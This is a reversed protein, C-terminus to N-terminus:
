ACQDLAPMRLWRKKEMRRLRESLLETAHTGAHAGAFRLRDGCLICKYPNTGLFGKMLVAFGPKEPKERAQMQLAEYVLPLLTGRKRNALFCSYRVMKFHRAPVHCIYRGIIDEQSLTQRKHKGTRHDLYHHVVAGGGYNRLRSASVPPRKLYRGLYKVSHWSGWTKKAFHVKWYRGYQAQLYRRWEREDRIHGLGPLKSPMIRVYSDRLLRIVASRWVGHKVDFGARTVSVHM